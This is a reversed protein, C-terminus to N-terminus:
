RGLAFGMRAESPVLWSLLLVFIFSGLKLLSQLYHFLRVISPIGIWLTHLSLQLVVVSVACNGLSPLFLSLSVLFYGHDARLSAHLAQSRDVHLNLGQRLIALRQGGCEGTM